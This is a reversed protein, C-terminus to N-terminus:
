AYTWPHKTKSVRYVTGRAPMKKQAPRKILDKSHSSYGETDRKSNKNQEKKLRSTRLQLVSTCPQPRPTLWRNLSPAVQVHAAWLRIPLLRDILRDVLCPRHHEAMMKLEDQRKRRKQLWRELTFPNLFRSTFNLLNGPWLGIRDVGQSKIRVTM